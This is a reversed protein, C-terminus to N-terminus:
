VVSKRDTQRGYTTSSQVGYRTSAPILRRLEVPKAGKASNCSRCACQVNDWTHGGGLAIAVIHDVEPATPEFTGKLHAPTSCGCLQCTWGDRIFVKSSTVSYDRPAGKRNARQCHTRPRGRDQHRRVCSDSCFIRRKDGYAPTFQNACERCARALLPKLAANRSRFRKSVSRKLCDESCYRRSPRGEFQVGCVSCTPRVAIRCTM